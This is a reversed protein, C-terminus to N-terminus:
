AYTGGDITDLTILGSSDDFQTSNFSALGKTSGDAAANQISLTLTGSSSTVSGNSLSIFKYEPAVGAGNSALLSGPTAAASLQALSTTTAAYLVQGVTYTGFGTGGWNAAIVSGRWTGTAITGVQTLSSNVVSAGLTSSSLVSQNGIKYAFGTTLDVNTTSTWNAFTGGGHVYTWNIGSTGLNIGGTDVGAATTQGDALVINLDDITVTTSNVTTTSGEVVLNGKINVTAGTTGTGLNIIATTSGINVTNAAGGINLGTVTTNLLNFTTSGSSITTSVSMAGQLTTAGTVTLNGNMNVNGQLTSAGTVTLNNNLTTAGTVTLTSNFSGAGQHVSVGTVTLTGNLNTGANRITATGGTGGLIITNAAGLVNANTVTTNLLNFTASSSSITTGKIEANGNVTLNDSITVLGQLNSAGTVTLAGNTSLAGQIVTAGTVTLTGNLRTAANRITTTGSAAGMVLSTAAGGVNVTTANTNFVNATTGSTTTLINATTWGFTLDVPTVDLTDDTKAGLYLNGGSFISLGAAQDIGQITLQPSNGGVNAFPVATLNLNGTPTITLPNTGSVSNTNITGGVGGGQGVTFTNRVNTSGTLAGMVLSTAAGAFNITTATTNYLNQTTSLGSVTSNGLILGGTGNAGIRVATASTGVNVTGAASAVNLGTVTTNLLNFTTATSTIDGGNVAIDGTATVDGILSSAGTVTLTSNFHGAGQHVSVGTVTLTGNLNTAANRITATGGTGGLIITNAAGLVNANTVTTNFLSLTSQNSTITSSLIGLNSTQLWTSGNGAQGIFINTEGLGSSAWSGGINLTKIASGSASAINVNQTGNVNNGISLTTAADLVNANTVTTNLLNFTTASSTITGGNALISGAFTANGTVSLSGNTTLPGNVILEDTSPNFIIGSTTDIFLAASTNTANIDTFLMKYNQSASTATVGVNASSSPAAWSMNGSTDAQLVYGSSGPYAGPLTYTVGGTSVASPAAITIDDTGGGKERLTIDGGRVAIDGVFTADGTVSLTGNIATAANRITATGASNGIVITSGSTTGINITSATNTVFNFTTATTFIDGGKVVLDGSLLTENASINVLTPKSIGAASGSITIQADSGLTAGLDQIGTLVLAPFTSFGPSTVNAVKISSLPNGTTLSGYIQVAAGVPGFSLVGGDNTSGVILTSVTSSLSLASGTITGEFVPSRLPAFIDGIAKRTALSTTSTFATTTHDLIEAGVWKVASGNGVYLFNSVTNFAPEGASLSAPAGAASTKRKFQITPNTAM